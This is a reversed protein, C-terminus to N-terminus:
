FENVGELLESLTMGLAKALCHVTYINPCRDQDSYIRYVTSRSLGSDKIIRYITTNKKKVTEKLKQNFKM